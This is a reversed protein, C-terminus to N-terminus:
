FLFDHAEDFGAGRGVGNGGGRESVASSVLLDIFIALIKM